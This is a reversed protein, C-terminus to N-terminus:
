FLDSFLYGLGAGVVMGIPGAWSGLETGLATGSLLASSAMYGVTAGVMTGETKQQVDQVKKNAKLESNAQDIQQQEASERVFGSLAQNKYNIGTSIVGAM